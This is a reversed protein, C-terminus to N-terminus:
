HRNISHLTNFRKMIIGAVVKDHVIGQVNFLRQTKEILGIKIADYVTDCIDDHAHTDNATIREMHRLCRETHLGRAPLSIQRNAVYEQMELYRTTKSGSAKTRPVDIVSLGQMKSLCSSLTVGTSKKEIAIFKVKGVSRLAKVYFDLLASELDKPEVRIEDCAMWHLGYLDIDTGKLKINYLGWLSFVSADNYSKDTEATDVTMFASVIEPDVELVPFWERKFLMGGAPVPNQQYQGAFVYPMLDRMKKLQVVSHMEPHLANGADDLAPIIVERYEKRERLKGALDREHLRQGLFIIPTNVPDNVRSSLTEDFWNNVGERVVDSMVEDPKHIDDIVIAGGYRDVGKIGAGLGTITGGAGVAYVMGGNTTMFHDKASSDDRIRVGFLDTYEKLQMIERITQTMKAALTHAYSVYIFQSDPYQAMSWAVFHILLESKGYRPPLNILLRPCKGQIVGHLERCISIYHSERGTPTSLQFKRGTRIYYFYHTFSSLSSFLKIREGWSIWTMGGQVRGAGTKWLCYNGTM